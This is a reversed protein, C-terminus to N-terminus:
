NLKKYQKLLHLYIKQWTKQFNPDQASLMMARANSILRDKSPEFLKALPTM